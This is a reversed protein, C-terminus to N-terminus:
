QQAFKAPNKEFDPKCDACCFAYRKGNYVVQQTTPKVTFEEGSVPCKMKTGVAILAPEGAAPAAAPAAVAVPAASAAPAPKSESCAALLSASLLLASIKMSMKMRRFNARVEMECLRSSFPARRRLRVRERWVRAGDSARFREACIRIEAARATERLPVRAACSSASRRGRCFFWSAEWAYHEASASEDSNTAAGASAAVLCTALGALVAVTEPSAFSPSAALGSPSVLAFFGFTFFGFVV